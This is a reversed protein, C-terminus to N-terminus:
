SLGEGLRAHLDFWGEVNADVQGAAFRRWYGELRRRMDPASLWAGPTDEGFPGSSGFPFTHEVTRGERAPVPCSIDSITSQNIFKFDAYGLSVLAEFLEAGGNEVSVYTPLPSLGELGSIAIGDYAEIDVKLYYPVGFVGFLERMTVTEVLVEEVPHGRSAIEPDFSSWESLSQNVFFPFVGSHSGVGLNVVTLRGLKIESRFRIAGMDTLMPNAELAVVRFGKKLYFETDQGIHMGLDFILDRHLSAKGTDLGALTTLVRHNTIKSEVPDEEPLAADRGKHASVALSPCAVDDAVSVTLWEGRGAIGGLADVRCPPVYRAVYRDDVLIQVLNIDVEVEVALLTKECPLELAVTEAGSWSDRRCMNFVIEDPDRRIEVYLSTHGSADALVL